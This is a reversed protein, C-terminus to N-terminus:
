NYMQVLTKRKKCVGAKSHSIKADNNPALHIIAVRCFATSKDPQEFKHPEQHSTKQKMAMNEKLYVDRILLM